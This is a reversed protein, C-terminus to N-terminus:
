ADTPSSTSTASNSIKKSQLLMQVQQELAKVTNQTEALSKQTEVLSEKTANLEKQQEVNETVLDIFKNELEMAYERRSKKARKEETVPKEYYSYAAAGLGFLRGKDNWGGAAELFLEDETKQNETECELNAAKKSNYDNWVTEAKSNVFRGGSDAHCEFYLEAATPKRGLKKELKLRVEETSISGQRHHIKQTGNGMRNKSCQKSKEQFEKRKRIQIMEERITPPCWVANYKPDTCVKSVMDSIRRSCKSKWGKKVEKAISPDWSFEQKFANWWRRRAELPTMAWNCYPGKFCAKYSTKSVIDTVERHAFWLGNPHLVSDIKEPNGTEDSVSTNPMSDVQTTQPEQHVTAETTSNPVEDQHSITTAVNTVPTQPAAQVNPMQNPTSLTTHPLTSPTIHPAAKSPIEHIMAESTIRPSNRYGPSRIIAGRGNLGGRRRYSMHERFWNSFHQDYNTWVDEVCLCGYTKMVHEEFLREFDSLLECNGLVYRHAVNYDKDSLYALQGQTPSYGTNCYFVEPLNKDIPEEVAKLNLGLIGVKTNVHDEFYHSCFTSIEETLYANCISAEVRAKNGVKKKLHYLFREFPYMWRYQVPGGVKAEYPLHIPLHEM